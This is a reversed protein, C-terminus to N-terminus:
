PDDALAVSHTWSSVLWGAAEAEVPHLHVHDHHARCILRINAPDTISGGRSRTLPEHPDVPGGCAVEPFAVAAPCHDSPEVAAALAAVVERRQRNEAARKASVQKLPARVKSPAPDPQGSPNVLGVRTKTPVRRPMPTRTLGTRTVLPTRRQLQGGRAM